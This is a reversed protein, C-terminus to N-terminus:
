IKIDYLARFFFLSSSNIEKRRSVLDDERNRGITEIM